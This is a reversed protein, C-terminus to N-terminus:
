MINSIINDKVYVGMIAENINNKITLVGTKLDLILSIEIGSIPHDISTISDTFASACIVHNKINIKRYDLSIIIPDRYEVIFELSDNKLIISNSDSESLQKYSVDIEYYGDLFSELDEASEWSKFMFTYSLIIIILTFFCIAIKNINKKM